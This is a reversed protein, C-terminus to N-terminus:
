LRAFQQLLIIVQHMKYLHRCYTLLGSFDYKQAPTLNDEGIMEVKFGVAFAYLKGSDSAIDSKRLIGILIDFAILEWAAWLDLAEKPATYTM